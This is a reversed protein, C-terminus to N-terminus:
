LNKPKNTNRIFGAGGAGVIEFLTLLRFGGGWGLGCVKRNKGWYFFIKSKSFFVGRFM